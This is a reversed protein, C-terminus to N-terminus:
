SHTDNVRFAFWYWFILMPQTKKRRRKKKVIHTHISCVIDYDLWFLSFFWKQWRLLIFIINNNQCFFIRYFTSHISFVRKLEYIINKNCAYAYAYANPYYAFVIFPPHFSSFFLSFSFSFFNFWLCLVITIEGAVCVYAYVCVWLCLFMWLSNTLHRFVISTYWRLRIHTHTKIIFTHELLMQKSHIAGKKCSFVVFFCCCSYKHILVSRCVFTNTQNKEHLICSITYFSLRFLATLM